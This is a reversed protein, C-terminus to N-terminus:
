PRLELGYSDRMKAQRRRRFEVIAAYLLALVGGAGCIAANYLYQAGPSPDLLVPAPAIAVGNKRYSEAVAGPLGNEILMGRSTIPFPPTQRSFKYYSEGSEPPTYNAVPTKVFYVLPDGTRWDRATVPVYHDVRRKDGFDVQFEPHAVGTMVVHRSPPTKSRSLDFAEFAGNAAAQSYSYGYL